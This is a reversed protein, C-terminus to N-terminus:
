CNQEFQPFIQSIPSLATARTRGGALPNRQLIDGIDGISSFSPSIFQFLRHPILLTRSFPSLPAAAETFHPSRVVTHWGSVESVSSSSREEFASLCQNSVPCFWGMAPWCCCIVCHLFAWLRVPKEDSLSSTPNECLFCNPDFDFSSQWLNEFVSLIQIQIKRQM